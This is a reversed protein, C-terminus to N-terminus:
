AHKTITYEDGEWGRSALENEVTTKSFADFFFTEGWITEVKYTKEVKM